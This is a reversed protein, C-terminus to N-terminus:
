YRRGGHQSVYINITRKDFKGIFEKALSNAFEDHKKNDRWFLLGM